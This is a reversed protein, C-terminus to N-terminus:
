CVATDRAVPECIRGAEFNGPWRLRIANSRM